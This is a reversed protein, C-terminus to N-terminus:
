DDTFFGVQKSDDEDLATAPIGLATLRSAMASPDWRIERDSTVMREVQKLAEPLDDKPGTLIIYRAYFINCDERAGGDESIILLKM